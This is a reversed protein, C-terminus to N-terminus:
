YSGEGSAIANGLEIVLENISKDNNTQNRSSLVKGSCNLINIKNKQCLASLTGNVIKEMNTGYYILDKADLADYWLIDFHVWSTAGQGETELFIRNAGRVGTPSANMYKM